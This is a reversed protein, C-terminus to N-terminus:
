KQKKQLTAMAKDHEDVLVRWATLGTAGREGWEVGCTEDGAADSVVSGEEGDDLEGRGPAGRSDDEGAGWYVGGDKGM